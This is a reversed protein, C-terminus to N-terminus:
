TLTKNFHNHTNTYGDSYFNVDQEELYEQIEFSNGDLAQNSESQFADSCIQFTSIIFEVYVSDTSGSM